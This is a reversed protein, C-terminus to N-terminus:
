SWRRGAPISFKETVFFFPAPNDFEMIRTCGDYEVDVITFTSYSIKRVSCIPLTNLITEAVKGIKEHANTFNMAMSATLTALVNAKVGSGLGDSLVMTTRNADKDRRSLFVDGCANYGMKRNQFYDIEVYTSNGM